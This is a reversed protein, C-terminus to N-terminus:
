THLIIFKVFDDKPIPKSFYFGQLYDVELDELLKIQEETEVGEVLIKKKMQRIMRVTSELIIMGLESKEAGWLLSKDIKVVDLNMSFIASINSYGTGYDDMSFLFGGEKLNHIVTSLIGYDDAAISETIEFNIMAKNIGSKEVIENIHEVFGPKMCQVVSLNVNINKIGYKSPIGTKIFKCVEKLVFDDIDEILGTQEAIPIFEDPYLNGLEKDHMRILAEAGHLKKNLLYTPQYYVEFSNERFGRSIADEIQQRRMIYNLDSGRLVTKDSNPPFPNNIMYFLENITHLNEPMDAVVITTDLMISFDKYEWSQNFRENLSDVINNKEDDSKKFLTIIFTHSNPTYIYFRKVISKLYDSIIDSIISSEETGVLRSIIDSNNIHLTIICISHNHKLCSLLDTKLATQNYFGTEFNIRDDEDEISIMSGILGLSEALVELKIEKWLLQVLVGLGILIFFFLLATRRKESIVSWSKVMVFFALVFYFVAALYLLHEAWERHYVMNEDISWVINNIPNLIVLIETFIFPTALLWSKTSERRTTYLNVNSVYYFFVPCLATHTLFYIFRNVQYINEIFDYKYSFFECIASTMGTLSNIILICTLSIFLKNHFKDTRKHILTYILSVLCILLSSIAVGLSFSSNFMYTEEGETIQFL